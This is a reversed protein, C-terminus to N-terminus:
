SFVTQLGAQFMTATFACHGRGEVFHRTLVFGKDKRHELRAPLEIYDSVMPNDILEEKGGVGLYLRFPLATHDAGFQEEYTFTIRNGFSLSPSDAFYGIFLEPRHFLAYLAFLGGYPHGALIRQAALQVKAVYGLV